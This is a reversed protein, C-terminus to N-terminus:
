FGSEYADNFKELSTPRQWNNLMIVPMFRSLCTFVKRRGWYGMGESLLQEGNEMIAM